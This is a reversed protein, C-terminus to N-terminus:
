TAAVRGCERGVVASVFCGNKEHAKSHPNKVKLFFRRKLDFFHSFAALANLSPALNSFRAPNAV